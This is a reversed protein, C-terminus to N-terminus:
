RPSGTAANTTTLVACRHDLDLSRLPLYPSPRLAIYKRRLTVLDTTMTVARIAPNNSANTTVLEARAMSELWTSNQHSVPILISGISVADNVTGGGGAPDVQVSRTNFDPVSLWSNGFGIGPCDYVGLLPRSTDCAIRQECGMGGGVVDGVVVDGVVVDGVVVVGGLVTEGVVSGGPLLVM